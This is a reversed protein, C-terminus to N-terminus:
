GAIAGVFAAIAVIAFSPIRGSVLGAFSLAAIGLHLSSTMSRPALDAATWLMLVASTVIVGTAAGSLRANQEGRDLIKLVPVILFSPLVLAASAMGLGLLGRVSYGVFLLYFGLPGPTIQSIALFSMLQADTLLGHREVLATRIVAVSSWGSYSFVVSEALVLLLAWHTM